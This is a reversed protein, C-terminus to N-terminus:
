LAISLILGVLAGGLHGSYDIGPIIPVLAIIITLILQKLLMTQKQKTAMIFVNMLLAMIGSSAGVSIIYPNEQFFYSLSSGGIVGALFIAIMKVPGEYREVITGISSLAWTNFFIHLFNAHLFGAFLLKEYSFSNKQLAGLAILVDASPSLSQSLYLEVFFICWLLTTLIQTM